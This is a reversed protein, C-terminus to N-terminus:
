HVAQVRKILAQNGEEDVVHTGGPAVEKLKRVLGYAPKFSRGGNPVAERFAGSAEVANKLRNALLRNHEYNGAQDQLCMFGQINEEGASEPAGHIASHPTANYGHVVKDLPKSWTGGQNARAEALRVKLTQM